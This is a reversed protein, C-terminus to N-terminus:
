APTAPRWTIWNATPTSCATTAGSHAKQTDYVNLEWSLLSDAEIGATAALLQRFYDAPLQEAASAMILALETQKQLKLGDENVGRNM